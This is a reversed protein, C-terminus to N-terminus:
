VKYKTRIRNQRQYQKPPLGTHKRFFRSFYFENAFGLRFAVERALCDQEILLDSAMNLLVREIYQKPAMGTAKSFNRSFVERRLGRVSAVEEVTLAASCHKRIYNLELEFQDFGSAFTFSEAPVFQMMEGAFREAVSRVMVASRLADEERYAAM